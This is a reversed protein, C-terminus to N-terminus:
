SVKKKTGIKLVVPNDYRRFHITDQINRPKLLCFTFLHSPLSLTVAVIKLTFHSEELLELDLKKVYKIKCLSRIILVVLHLAM